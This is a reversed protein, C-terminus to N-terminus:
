GLDDEDDEVETVRADDVRTVRTLEDASYCRIDDYSPNDVLVRPDGCSFDVVTGRWFYHSHKRDVCTVRDGLRLPRNPDEFTVPESGGEPTTNNLWSRMMAIAREQTLEHDAAELYVSFKQEPKHYFLEATCHVTDGCDNEVSFNISTSYGENFKTYRTKASFGPFAEDVLQNFEDFNNM